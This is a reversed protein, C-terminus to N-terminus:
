VVSKRDASAQNFDIGMATFPDEEGSAYSEIMDNAESSVDQAPTEQAPASITEKPPNYGLKTVDFGMKVLDRLQQEENKFYLTQVFLDANFSQSATENFHKQQEEDLPNLYPMISYSSNQETGTRTITIPFNYLNAGLQKMSSIISEAYKEAVDIIVPSGDELKYFGFQFRNKPEFRKAINRQIKWEEINEKYLPSVEKILVKFAKDYLDEEGKVKHCVSPLIKENENVYYSHSQYPFVSSTLDPVRVLISENDQLFHKLSQSEKKNSTQKSDNKQNLIAEAAELGVNYQM